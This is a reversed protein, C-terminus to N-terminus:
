GKTIVMNYLQRDKGGLHYKYREDGRLFDYYSKGSDIASKLSLANLLLGVSYYSYEPDYGSNYLLRNDKHDFCFASAVRQGGIELFFLRVIGLEAMAKAMARFFKEREPTLFRYKSERSLGLLRLFDDMAQEVDSPKDLFYWEMGEASDLRRLKRRLEHRDKKNLEAQYTDWDTPLVKGPAVEGKDVEVSWGRARAVDPLFKLTPSEPTLSPLRLTKWNKDVLYDVLDTFFCLESGAAILFDNYDCVDDDGVLSIVDGTSRVAAIGITQTTTSVCIFCVNERQGIEEWWKQQWQIAMFPSNTPCNQLVTEWLETVSEFSSLLTIPAM